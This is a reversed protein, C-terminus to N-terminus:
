NKNKLELFVNLSEKKLRRGDCDACPRM